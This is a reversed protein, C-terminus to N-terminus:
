QSVMQGFPGPLPVRHGPVPGPQAAGPEAEGAPFPGPVEAPPVSLGEEQHVGFVALAHHPRAAPGAPQPPRRSPGRRGPDPELGRRRSRAAAPGLGPAAGGHRSPALRGRLAVGDGTGRRESSAQCPCPASSDRDGSSKRSPGLGCVSLTCSLARPRPLAQPASAPVEM